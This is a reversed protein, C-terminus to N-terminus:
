RWGRRTRLITHVDIRVDNFNLSLAALSNWRAAEQLVNKEAKDIASLLSMGLGVDPNRDDDRLYAMAREVVLEILQEREM